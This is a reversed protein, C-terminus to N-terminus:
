VRAQHERHAGVVGLAFFAALAVAQVAGIAAVVGGPGFRGYLSGLALGGLLWALGFITNFIGYALGRAERPSLDGVAARMTTEVLGMAVGWAVIGTIVLVTQGQFAAAAAFAAFVPVAALTVLGFRDYGWGAVLAVLGDVGMALAYLVPIAATPVISRAELHYSLLAFPAFGLTAVVTFVAYRWFAGPLGAVSAGGRAPVRDREMSEPTPEQRWALGLVVVTALAPLTLLAFGLRYGNAGDLALAVAFLAPGILAGVQDLAEHLGFGKGRGVQSAAHSLIADRSPTRLAKGIRELVILLAAWEWRHVLALLPLAAISAYGLFTLLWYSRFRDALYGAVTRLAYGAFEGLGAILGVAVASAGLTALFPGTVGRVGEYTVDGLLSVIGLLVILRYARGRLDRQGVM